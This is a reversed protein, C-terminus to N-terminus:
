CFYKIDTDRKGQSILFPQSSTIPLYGSKTFIKTLPAMCSDCVYPKDRSELDIFLKNCQPCEYDNIIM